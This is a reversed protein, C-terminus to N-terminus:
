SQPFFSSSSPHFLPLLFSSSFAGGGKERRKGRGAPERPPSPIGARGQHTVGRRGKGRGTRRLCLARGGGEGQRPGVSRRGAGGTGPASVWRRAVSVRPSRPFRPAPGPRFPVPRAGRERGAREGGEVKNKKTRHMKNEGPTSLPHGRSRARRGAGLRPPVATGLGGRGDGWRRESSGRGGGPLPPSSPASNLAARPPSLTQPATATKWCSRSSCSRGSPAAPPSGPCPGRQSGARGAAGRRPAPNLRMVRSKVHGPPRSPSRSRLSAPPSASARGHPRLLTRGRAKGGPVARLAARSAGQGDGGARKGGAALAPGGAPGGREPGGEAAKGRAHPSRRASRPRHPTLHPTRASSLEARTVVETSELFPPSPYRCPQLSRAYLQSLGESPKEVRQRPPNARQTSLM